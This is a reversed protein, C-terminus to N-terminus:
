ARRDSPSRPCRAGPAARHQSVGCGHAPCLAATSTQVPVQRVHSHLPLGSSRPRTSWSCAHGVKQCFKHLIQGRRDSAGPRSDQLVAPVPLLQSFSRHKVAHHCCMRTPGPPRDESAHVACLVGYPVCTPTLEGESAPFCSEQTKSISSPSILFVVSAPRWSLLLVCAFVLRRFNTEEGM